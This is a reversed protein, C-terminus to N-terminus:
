AFRRAPAFLTRRYEDAIGITAQHDCPRRVVRGIDAGENVDGTPAQVFAPADFTEALLFWGRGASWLHARVVM